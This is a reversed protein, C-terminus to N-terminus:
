AIEEAVKAIFRNYLRKELDRVEDTIPGLDGMLACEAEIDALHQDEEKIVSSLSIRIGKDKLMENYFPYFVAAREEIALTTLLYARHKLARGEHGLVRKVARCAGVDLANLYRRGSLGGLLAYNAKIEPAIRGIQKKFFWAHRAEEAAHKLLTLDVDGSPLFASIKRAGCNELYSLTALWREHLERNDIIKNLLDTLQENRQLTANM